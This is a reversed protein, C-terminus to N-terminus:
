ARVRVRRAEARDTGTVIRDGEELGETVEAIGTGEDIIGLQINRREVQDGDIM